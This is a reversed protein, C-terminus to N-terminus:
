IKHMSLLLYIRVYNIKVELTRKIFLVNSKKREQPLDEWNMNCNSTRPVRFGIKDFSQVKTGNSSKLM